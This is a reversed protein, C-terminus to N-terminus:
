PSAEEDLEETPDDVSSIESATPTPSVLSVFFIGGTKVSSRSSLCSLFDLTHGLNDLTMTILYQQNDLLATSSQVQASRLSRDVHGCSTHVAGGGCRFKKLYLPM